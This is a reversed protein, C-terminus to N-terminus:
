NKIVTFLGLLIQEREAQSVYLSAKELRTLKHLPKHKSREALTRDYEKIGEKNDPKYRAPKLINDSIQASILQQFM